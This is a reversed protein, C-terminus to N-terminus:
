AELTVGHALGNLEALLGLARSPALGAALLLSGAAVLHAETGLATAVHSPALLHRLTGSPALHHLTGGHALGGLATLLDLPALAYLRLMVGAAELAAALKAVALMRDSLSAKGAHAIATALFGRMEDTQALTGAPMSEFIFIM